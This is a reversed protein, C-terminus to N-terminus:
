AIAGQRCILDVRLPDFPARLITAPLDLLLRMFRPTSDQSCRPLDGRRVAPSAQQQDHASDIRDESRGLNITDEAGDPAVALPVALQM